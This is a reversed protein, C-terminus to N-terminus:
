YPKKITHYAILYPHNSDSASSNNSDRGFSPILRRSLKKQEFREWRKSYKRRRNKSRVIRQDKYSKTNTSLLNTNKSEKSTVRNKDKQKQKHYFCSTISLQRRDERPRASRTWSSRSNLYRRQANSQIWSQRTLLASLQKWLLKQMTKAM